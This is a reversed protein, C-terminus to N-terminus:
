GSDGETFSHILRRDRKTPRGLPRANDHISRGLHREERQRERAKISEATEEYLAAAETAPRRLGNVGRVIVTMELIGRRIRLEDGVLVIRAPKARQGNSHVKGGSMAESALSRTKYFRAAWLWKDLRIKLGDM